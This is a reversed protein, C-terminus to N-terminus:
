ALLEKMLNTIPTRDVGADMWSGGNGVKYTKVVNCAATLAEIRAENIMKEVWERPVDNMQEPNSYSNIKRYWENATKM